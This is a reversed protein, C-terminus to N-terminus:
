QRQLAESRKSTQASFKSSRACCRAGIRKMTWSWCASTPWPRPDLRATLKNPPAPKDDDIAPFAVTFTTGHDVGASEVPMEGGHMEVLQRVLALGLGLGGESRSMSSNGQRFREFVHPLFDASIGKGTDRIVIQVADDQEIIRVDITGGPPTFKVANSLVNWAIQQM